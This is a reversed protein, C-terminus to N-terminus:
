EIYTVQTQIYHNQMYTSYKVIIHTYTNTHIFTINLIYTIHTYTIYTQIHMHARM